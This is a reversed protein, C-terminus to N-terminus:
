GGGVARLAAETRKTRASEATHLLPQDREWRAREERDITEFAPALAGILRRATAFLGALVLHVRPSTADEAAVDLLAAALSVLELTVDREFGHARCVGLLLGVTAALVHTDEITRFPKLYHLYGDGPLVDERAVPADALIVSAHPVEPAFPLPDRDRVTVGAALPRVRVLCLRPRGDDGEGRTAVVLLEDAASALTAFTKEGTVLLAGGREELRTAIARPHGGGRETAALCIREALRPVPFPSPLGQSAAAHRMLQDLAAWYGAFFAFGLRDAHFGGWLARPLPAEFPCERLRAGFAHVDAFPGRSPPASLLFTLPDAEGTRALM